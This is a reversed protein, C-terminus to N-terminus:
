RVIAETLARGQARTLKVGTLAAFTPALDAPTAATAYRGPRIMPGFLMVPVRQDYDYPSGHTTGSGSRVIWNRKATFLFDGSRGPVYSLRWARIDADTSEAGGIVDDASFAARVGAVGALAAKVAEFGGPKMRILDFEGPVLAIQQEYIAAVHQGQVGLVKDVAANV